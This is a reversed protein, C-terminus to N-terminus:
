PLSVIIPPTPSHARPLFHPHLGAGSGDFDFLLSREVEDESRTVSADAGSAFSAYSADADTHEDDDGFVSSPAESIISLDGPHPGPSLGGVGDAHWSHLEDASLVRAGGGGRDRALVSSPTDALAARASALLGDVLACVRFSGEDHARAAAPEEVDADSDETGEEDEEEDPEDQSVGEERERERM